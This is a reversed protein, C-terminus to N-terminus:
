EHIPTKRLGADGTRSRCQGPGPEFPTDRQFARDHPTDGHQRPIVRIAPFAMHTKEKADLSVMNNEKTAILQFFDPFKAVRHVTHQAIPPRASSFFAVWVPRKKSPDGGARPRRPSNNAWCRCWM